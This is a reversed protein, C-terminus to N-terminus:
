VHARGIEAEDYVNENVVQLKRDLIGERNELLINEGTSVDYRNVLYPAEGCTIELRRADVYDQWKHTSSFSIYEKSQEDSSSFAGTKGFWSDDAYRVMKQCIWLPTFVEAHKRTRDSQQEMAKRARTKIVDSNQGTILPEKIEKDRQYEAGQEQYADTAWIINARTTKDVLLQKLLGMSHLRLIEDQIGVLM